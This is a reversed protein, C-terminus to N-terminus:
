RSGDDVDMDGRARKEDQETVYGVRRKLTPATVMSLLNSTAARKKRAEQSFSGNVLAISHLVTVMKYRQEKLPVIVFSLQVDVLDGVRFSQPGAKLFSKRGESIQQTYYEVINEEGHVFGEKIMSELHGNPDVDAGFPIHNMDPADRRPTMYRNSIFMCSHGNSRETVWQEVKGEQFERQFIEFIAHGAETADEFKTSGLGTVAVTQRLFKYQRTAIKPKDTVPPLKLDCIVGSLTFIEEEAASIDEGEKGQRSALVTTAQYRHDTPTKTLTALRRDEDQPLVESALRELAERAKVSDYHSDM